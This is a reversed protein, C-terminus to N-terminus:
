VHHGGGEAVPDASTHVTDDWAYTLGDVVEVVGDVSECLRVTTLALSRREVAGSLTVRGDSVDATLASPSSRLTRTLVDELIEEQIARDRRPFLQLLDSRSIVGALRGGDDAVPLRKIGNKEMVRAARIVSWGPQAVVAPGAILWEATGASEKTTQRRLLDAESVVGAPREDDDVVPVATIGLEDLLRANGKFATGRRVAVVQPTMLDAVSRHRM